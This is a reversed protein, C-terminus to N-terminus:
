LPHVHNTNGKKNRHYITGVIKVLERAFDVKSMEQLRRTKGSRYIIVPRITASGATQVPNAVILAPKKERLKKRAMEVSDDQSFAVTFPRYKSASVIKLIDPTRRFAVTLSPAHLKARATKVPQYDAVAACMVLIDTEPLKNEVATAMEAATRVRITDPPLQVTVEGAILTVTSGAAKFAKAIELGMIGSSRNTIVRVPDLPEETRGTTVLVRVGTFDPLRTLCACCTELISEPSAMRGTGVMGCALEGTEPNIFRYGFAALRRINEQVIPNSWMNSNMAPAILVRGSGVKESPIALLITSLLDDAIGHALKGIINATAPAIVTLDPQVALDIHHISDHPIRYKPFLDVGVERGSLARFTDIGTLKAAAHTLVVTVNWGKKRFLRLLELSKYAAISGTVGLLIEVPKAM